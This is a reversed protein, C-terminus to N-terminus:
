RLTYEKLIYYVPKLVPPNTRNAGWKVVGIRKKFWMEYSFTFGDTLIVYFCRAFNGAETKVTDSFRSMRGTLEGFKWEYVDKFNDQAPVIIGSNGAYDSIEISRDQKVILTRSGNDLTLYPFCSMEIQIGGDIIKLNTVNVDFLETENRPGENVYEWSNGDSLPFYANVNDGTSESKKIENKGNGSNNCSFATLFQLSLLLIFFLKM